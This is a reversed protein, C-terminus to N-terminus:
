FLGIPILRHPPASLAFGMINLWHPVLPPVQLVARLTGPKSAVWDKLATRLTNSRSYNM